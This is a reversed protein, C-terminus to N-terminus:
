RFGFIRTAAVHTVDAIIYAPGTEPQYGNSAPHTIQYAVGVPRRWRVFKEIDALADVFM